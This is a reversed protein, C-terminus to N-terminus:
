NKLKGPSSMQQKNLIINDIKNLKGGHASRDKKQLKLDRMLDMEEMKSQLTFGGGDHRNDGSSENSHIQHLIDGYGGRSALSSSDHLDM